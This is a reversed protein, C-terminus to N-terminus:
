CGGSSATQYYARARDNVPSIRGDTNRVLWVGYKTAGKDKIVFEDASPGLTAELDTTALSPFCKVLYVFLTTVADTTTKM